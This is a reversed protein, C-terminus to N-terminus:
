PAYVQTDSLELSSLLLVFFLFFLNSAPVFPLVAMAGAKAAGWLVM